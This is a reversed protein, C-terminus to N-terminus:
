RASFGAERVIAALREVVEELDLDTSDLRVADDAPKLPAVERGSDRADRTEMEARVADRDTEAGAGVLEDFRRGVRSDLSATLFVKVDANPFVVTGIDRGELVCGGAEGMARQVGLLAARVPPHASVQSAGQSIDPARIDTSRDEGDVLLPPRAGAEPPEFRLELSATLAGLAEADDWAIGREKAALAVARYLAGTDILVYGLREALLRAATSKGAGAPGDIAVIAGDKATM